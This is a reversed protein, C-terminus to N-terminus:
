IRQKCLNDSRIYPISPDRPVMFQDVQGKREKPNCSPTSCRQRQAIYRGKADSITCFAPKNDVPKSRPPVGCRACILAVKRGLHIAASTVIPNKSRTENPVLRITATPNNMYTLSSQTPLVRPLSRPMRVGKNWSSQTPLKSKIFQYVLEAASEGRLYNAKIRDESLGNDVAFIRVTTPLSNPACLLGNMKELRRTTEADRLSVKLSAKAKVSKARSEFWDPYVHIGALAAAVNLCADFYRGAWSTWNWFLWEPHPAYVVIYSMNDELDRVLGITVREADSVPIILEQITHRLKFDSKNPAGFLILVKKPLTQCQRSFDTHLKKVDTPWSKTAVPQHQNVTSSQRRFCAEFWFANDASLGKQLLLKTCSNTEDASEGYELQKTRFTPYNLILHLAHSPSGSPKVIHAPNWGSITAEHDRFEEFQIDFREKDEYEYYATLFEEIEDWANGTAEKIHEKLTRFFTQLDECSLDTPSTAENANAINDIMEEIEVPTMGHEVLIDDSPTCSTEVKSKTCARTNEGTSLTEDIFLVADNHGIWLELDDARFEQSEPQPACDRESTTHDQSAPNPAQTPTTASFQAVDKGLWTRKPSHGSCDSATALGSAAIVGSSM